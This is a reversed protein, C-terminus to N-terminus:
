QRRGEERGGEEGGEQGKRGTKRQLCSRVLEKSCLLGLRSDWSHLSLWLKLTHRSPDGFLYVALGAVGRELTGPARIASDCCASFACSLPAGLGSKPTM